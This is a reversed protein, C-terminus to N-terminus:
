RHILPSPKNSKQTDTKDKQTTKKDKLTKSETQDTAKVITKDAMKEVTQDTEKSSKNSLPDITENIGNIANIEPTWNNEFPDAKTRSLNETM